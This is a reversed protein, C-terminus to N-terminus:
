RKSTRPWIPLKRMRFRNARLTTQMSKRIQQGLDAMSGNWAWPGTEAVGGLPPIRKAAGFSGDGLTDSLADSSHGDAHCSQCSMWNELSLRADYFLREGREAATLLPQPGLSIHAVADAAGAAAKGQPILAISDGLTDAVYLRTGDESAVLATPRLGVNFRRFRAADVQGSAVEGVGSLAVSFTGDPAVALAAPDGAGNGVQGLEFQAAGRSSTLKRIRSRQDSSRGCSM